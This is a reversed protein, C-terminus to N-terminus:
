FLHCGPGPPASRCSALESAARPAPAPPDPQAAGVACARILQKKCAPLFAAVRLGSRGCRLMLLTIATVAKLGSPKGRGRM